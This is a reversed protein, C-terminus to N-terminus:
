VSTIYRTNRTRLSLASRPLHYIVIVAYRFHSIGVAVEGEGQGIVRGYVLQFLLGAIKHHDTNVSWSFPFTPQTNIFTIREEFPEVIRDVNYFLIALIILDPLFPQRVSGALAFAYEVGFGAASAKGSWMYKVSNKQGVNKGSKILRKHPM